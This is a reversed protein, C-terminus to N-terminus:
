DPAPLQIAALLAEFDARTRPDLADENAPDQMWFYYAIGDQITIARMILLGGDPAGAPCHKQTLLAPSGDIETPETTEPNPCAHDEAEAVDTNSAVMELPDATPYSFAWAIPGCRFVQECRDTVKPAILQDVNPYDHGIFSQGDWAEVAAITRWATTITATYRYL